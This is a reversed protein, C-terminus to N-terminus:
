GVAELEQSNTAVDFCGLSALSPRLRQPSSRSKNAERKSRASDYLMHSVGAAITYDIDAIAKTAGRQNLDRLWADLRLVGLREGCDEAHEIWRRWAAAFADSRLGPPFEVITRQLVDRLPECTPPSNSQVKEFGFDGVERERKVSSSSSSSSSRKAQTNAEDNAEPKSGTQKSQAEVTGITNADTRQERRVEGSRHGGAKGAKSRTESKTEREEEDRIMRASTLVGAENQKLAGVCVIERMVSAFEEFTMGGGAIRHLVQTTMPEGSAFALCGRTPSEFCVCLLDILVGKAAATLARVSPDKMWDGPYFQFAPLKKSNNM